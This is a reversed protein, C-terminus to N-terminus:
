AGTGMEGRTFTAGDDSVTTVQGATTGDDNYLTGTTSTQTFKNRFAKYIYGIKAALTITAGPAGQGPEAFTDTNLVDLAEANVEAKMATSMGGLDTLGAGATGVNDRILQLGDTSPVFASTDGNSLVRSLITNDAVETTMDAAGTATLALHDLNNAILADNAETQVEAKMGTSMGGLDTLGAGAVGIDDTDALIDTVNAQMNDIKTDLTTGTDVLIADVATQVAAISTPYDDTQLEGTDALIDTVNGQMTNILAALDGATQATGNVQTANVIPLSATTSKPMAAVYGTLADAPQDEGDSIWSPDVTIVNGADGLSGVRSKGIANTGGTLVVLMRGEDLNHSDPLTITAEAISAFTGYWLVGSLKGSNVGETGYKRDWEYESLVMCRQWAPLATGDAFLNVSVLLEGPTNTDTTDLAIDYFGHEDHAANATADNKQAFNGGNKSLRVDAQDIDEGSEATGADSIDLFPGLKITCATNAKLERM